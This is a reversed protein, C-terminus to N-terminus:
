NGGFDITWAMSGYVQRRKDMAEELNAAECKFVDGNEMKFSFEYVNRPVRSRTENKSDM